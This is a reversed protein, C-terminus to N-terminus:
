ADPRLPQTPVLITGDATLPGKEALELRLYAIARDGAADRIHGASRGDVNIIDTGPAPTEGELTVPVLMKKVSMRHKMRATLEQGVYCGKDFAVGNLREAATELWFDKEYAFSRGEPIGLTLRYLHYADDDANIKGADGVAMVGRVGMKSDRPDVTAVTAGEIDSGSAVVCLETRLDDITVEARLRYMMLRKLLDDARSNDVDLYLCDTAAFIIMDFMVKGQPTLLAAYTAGDATISNTILGDLFSLMDPGSLRIVGRHGLRTPALPPKLESTNSM